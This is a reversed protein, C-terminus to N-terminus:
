SFLLAFAAVINEEIKEVYTQSEDTSQNFEEEPLESEVFIKFANPCYKKLQKVNSSEAILVVNSHNFAQFCNEYKSLKCSANCYGDYMVINFNQANRKQVIDYISFIETTLRTSYGNYGPYHLRDNKPMITEHESCLIVSYSFQPYHKEIKQLVELFGNIQASGTFSGSCDLFLNLHKDKFKKTSGLPNPVAFFKYDDRDCNRPNLTGSYAPTSNGKKGISRIPLEVFYRLKDYLMLSSKQIKAPLGRILSPTASKENDKAKTLIMYKLSEISSSSLTESEEKEAEAIQDIFGGTELDDTCNARLDSMIQDIVSDPLKVDYTLSVGNEVPIITPKYTDKWWKYVQQYFKEVDILYNEYIQKKHITPYKRILNHVQKVFNQPGKRLRVISYWLADFRAFDKKSQEKVVEKFNIGLFYNKLLSEVREDEFLHLYSKKSFIGPPTLMIHAVLHYFATRIATVNDKVQIYNLQDVLEQKSIILTKNKYDIKSKKGDSLFVDFRYGLYYGIPLTKIIEEIKM